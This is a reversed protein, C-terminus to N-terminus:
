TLSSVTPLRAQLPKAMAEMGGQAFHRVVRQFTDMAVYHEVLPAESVPAKILDALPVALSGFPIHRATHGRDTEDLDAVGSYDRKAYFNIVITPPHEVDAPPLAFRGLSSWEGVKLVPAACRQSFRADNSWNGHTYAFPDYEHDGGALWERELRM